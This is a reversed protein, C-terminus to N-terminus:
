EAAWSKPVGALIPPQKQNDIKIQLHAQLSAEAEAGTIDEVDDGSAANQAKALAEFTWDKVQAITVDDFPTFSGDPEALQVAGYGDSSYEGDRAVLRYHSIVIVGERGADDPQAKRDLSECRFTFDTM